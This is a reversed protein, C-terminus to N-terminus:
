KKNKMGFYYNIGTYFTSYLFQKWGAYPIPVTSTVKDDNLYTEYISSSAKSEKGLLNAHTIKYGLNFGIYNNFAYEFGLIFSLGFRVANRIKLNLDATDSKLLANGDIMNVNIDFGVFPKFKKAPSFNNEIGLAGSFVNYKVIGEPSEEIIFNSQFRNYEATINLRINGAKHLALKGKLSVGYGYRTGFTSGNEFDARRFYTNENGALDLHGIDYNFSLQLTFKPPKGKELMSYIKSNALATYSTDSKKVPPTNDQSFIFQSGMLLFLIIYLKRLNM